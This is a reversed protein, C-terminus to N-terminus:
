RRLWPALAALVQDVTIEAMRSARVEYGHHLGSLDDGPPTVAVSRPGVGGWRAPATVGHLAITPCGLAAALHMIGTDVSVVAAAGLLVAAADRLSLKGAVIEVETPRRCSAQVERCRAVDDGAGTLCVRYGQINLRDILGVWNERPWEKSRARAGGPHLHLVLYPARAAAAPAIAELRPASGAPVGITRLLARFNDLEHVNGHVAARDYVYHRYQGRAEFGVKFGARAFFSYLANIRTWQGCDLWLDFARRRVARFAQLPCLLEVPVVEIGPMLLAAEHSSPGAFFVIRASPFAARLDAVIASILVTDGIAATNLLAISADRGLGQWARKEHLLGCLRVLPIGAGRDIWRLAHLVRSARMSRAM